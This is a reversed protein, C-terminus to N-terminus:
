AEHPVPLGAVLEPRVVLAACLSGDDELCATASDGPLPVEHKPILVPTETGKAAAGLCEGAIEVEM